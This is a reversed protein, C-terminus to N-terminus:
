PAEVGLNAPMTIFVARGVLVGATVFEPIGNLVIPRVADFLQEEDDSYVYSPRFGAAPRCGASPM